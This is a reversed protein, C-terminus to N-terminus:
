WLSGKSRNGCRRRRDSVVVVGDIPYGACRRMRDSVVVIEDISYGECRGRRDIDLCILCAARIIREPTTSYLSFVSPSFVDGVSPCYHRKASSCVSIVDHMVPALTATLSTM